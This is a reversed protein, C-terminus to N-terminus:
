DHYLNGNQLLDQVLQKITSDNSGALLQKISLGRTDCLTQVFNLNNEHLEFSQGDVFFLISQGSKTYAFRSGENRCIIVNQSILDELDEKTFSSELAQICSENKPSTNFEGFWRKLNEPNQTHQNLVQNLKSFVTDTIENPHDQPKLDADEYISYPNVHELLYDTFHSLIQTHTPAKYGISLNISEGQAIGYHAINPPIYLMDGAELVWSESEHFESLIRLPTGELQPSNEDCQQGIRWLRKGEAQIIFVDYQDYHPGVSGGDVSYSAMVDDFRWNPIFNFQQRLENIEPVWADLQQILFTWNSKPMSAFDEETFPGNKPEWHGSKGNKSVMRSEIEEELALGALEDASVPCEFGPIAQRILLPKKQWYEKIFREATIGGLLPLPTKLNMDIDKSPLQQISYILLTL